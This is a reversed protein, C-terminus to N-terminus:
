FPPIPSFIPSLSQMFLFLFKNGTDTTQPNPSLRLRQMSVCDLINRIQKKIIQMRNTFYLVTSLKM